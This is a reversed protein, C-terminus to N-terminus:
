EDLIGLILERLDDLYPYKYPIEGELHEAIRAIEETIGKAEEFDLMLTLAKKGKIPRAENEL